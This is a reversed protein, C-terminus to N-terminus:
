EFWASNMEAPTVLGGAADVVFFGGFGVAVVELVVVLVEFVVCCVQHGVEDVVVIFVVSCVHHGVVEVVVVFGVSCVQHGVDDVVV